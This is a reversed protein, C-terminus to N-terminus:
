ALTATSEGITHQCKIFALKISANQSMAAGKLFKSIIQKARAVPFAQCHSLSISRGCTEGKNSTLTHAGRVTCVPPPPRDPELPPVM